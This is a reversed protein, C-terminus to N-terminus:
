TRRSLRGAAGVIIAKHFQFILWCVFASLPAVFLDSIQRPPSTVLVLAIWVLWFLRFCWVMVKITLRTKPGLQAPAHREPAVPPSPTPSIIRHEAERLAKALKKMREESSLSEQDM